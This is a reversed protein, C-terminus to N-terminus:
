RRKVVFSELESRERKAQERLQELAARMGETETEFATEMRKIGETAILDDGPM